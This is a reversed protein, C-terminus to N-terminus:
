NLLFSLKFKQQSDRVQENSQDLFKAICTARGFCGFMTRIWLRGQIQLSISALLQLLPLLGGNIHEFYPFNCALGPAVPLRQREMGVDRIQFLIEQSSSLVRLLYRRKIVLFHSTRSDFENLFSSLKIHVRPLNFNRYRELLSGVHDGPTVESM